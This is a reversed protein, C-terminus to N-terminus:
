ALSLIFLFFLLVEGGKRSEKERCKRAAGKLRQRDTVFRVRDRVRSRRRCKLGVEAESREGGAGEGGDREEGVQM